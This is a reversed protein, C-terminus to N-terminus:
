ESVTIREIKTSPDHHRTHAPRRPADGPETANNVAEAAKDAQASSSSEPPFLGGLVGSLAGVLQEATTSWRELTRPDQERLKRVVRCLPCVTCEPGHALSDDVDIATLAGRAWDVTAEVLRRAEEGTAGTM